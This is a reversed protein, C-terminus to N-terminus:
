EDEEINWATCYMYCVEKLSEVADVIKWLTKEDIHTKDETRASCVVGEAGYGTVNTAIKTILYEAKELVEFEDNNLTIAITKKIEM